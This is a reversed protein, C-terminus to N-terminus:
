DGTSRVAHVIFDNGLPAVQDTSPLKAKLSFRIKPLGNTCAVRIEVPHYGVTLDVAKDGGHESSLYGKGAILENGDVSFFYSCTSSPFTSSLNLLFGYQGAEPANILGHLKIAAEDGTIGLKGLRTYADDQAAGLIFSALPVEGIVQLKYSMVQAVWGAKFTPTSPAAAPVQTPAVQANLVDFSAMTAIACLALAWTRRSAIGM